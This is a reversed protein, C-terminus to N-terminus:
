PLEQTTLRGFTVGPLSKRCAAARSRWQSQLLSMDDVYDYVTPRTKGPSSRMVRGIRQIVRGAARSPAVLHVAVLEPLDLGEDALQTAVLVKAFGSRIAEFAAARDKTRGVVAVADPIARALAEAHEVRSTLVLQPWEGHHAVMRRILDNRGEMQALESVIATFDGSWSHYGTEVKVVVPAVTLGVSQLHKPDVTHRCPGLWAYMAPTWGDDRNPTATLGYIASCKLTGLVDQFTKAPVHHAEDVIVTGFTYGALSVAGERMKASTQFTSIIVGPGKGESALAMCKALEFTGLGMLPSVDVVRKFREEWQTALDRTHVLVLTAGAGRPRITHLAVGMQTKGAGCPAVIVGSRWRGAAIVAWKQHEMLWALQHTAAMTAIPDGYEQDSWATGMPVSVVDPQDYRRAWLRVLPNIHRQFRVIGSARLKQQELAEPNPFELMPEVEAFRSRSIDVWM